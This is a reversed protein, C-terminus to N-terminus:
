RIVVPLYLLNSTHTGGVWFGASLHYNGGSLEGALPQSIAGTLSYGSGTSTSGGGPIVWRPLSFGTAALATGSLLLVLLLLISIRLLARKM